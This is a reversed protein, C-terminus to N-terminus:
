NKWTTGTCNLGDGQYGPKCTCNHTGNFNTCDADAHCNHGHGQGLCENIDLVFYFVTVFIYAM